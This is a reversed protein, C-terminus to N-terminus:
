VLCTARSRIPWSQSILPLGCGSGDAIALRHRSTPSFLSLRWSDPDDHLNRSFTIGLKRQPAVHISFEDLPLQLGMGRAKAYAEKLTWL